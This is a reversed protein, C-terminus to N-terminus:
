QEMQNNIIVISNGRYPGWAMCTGTYKCHVRMGVCAYACVYVVM